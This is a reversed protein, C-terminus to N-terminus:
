RESTKKVQLSWVFTKMMTKIWFTDFLFPLDFRLVLKISTKKTQRHSGLIRWILDLVTEVNDM